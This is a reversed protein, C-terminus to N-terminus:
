QEVVFVAAAGGGSGGVDVFIHVLCTAVGHSVHKGHVICYFACM